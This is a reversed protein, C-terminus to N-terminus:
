CVFTVWIFGMWVVPGPYYLDESPQTEDLNHNYPDKTPSRPELILFISQLSFATMHNYQFTKFVWGTNVM